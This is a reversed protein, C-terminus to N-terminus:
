TTGHSSLPDRRPLANKESLYKTNLFPKPGVVGTTFQRAPGINRRNFTGATSAKLPKSGQMGSPFSLSPPDSRPSSKAVLAPQLALKVNPRMGYTTPEEDKHVFHALSSDGDKLQSSVNSMSPESCSKALDSTGSDRISQGLLQRERLVPRPVTQQLGKAFVRYSLCDDM